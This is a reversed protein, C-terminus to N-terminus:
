KKDLHDQKVPRATDLVYEPCEQVHVLDPPVFGGSQEMATMASVSQLSHRSNHIGRNPCSHQLWATKLALAETASMHRPLNSILGCPPVLQHYGPWAQCGSPQNLRRQLLMAEIELCAAHDYFTYITNLCTDSQPTKPDQAASQPHRIHSM